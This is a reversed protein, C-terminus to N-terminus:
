AGGPERAGPSVRRRKKVKTIVIGTLAALAFSVAAGIIGSLPTGTANGPDSAIAYDPLLAINEQLSAAGAFVGGKAELETKAGLVQETTKGIAWELGDPRSSAFPSLVGAVVVTLAALTIVLKKISFESHRRGAPASAVVEPGMEAPTSAIAEGLRGAPASAVIEVLKDTQTSTVVETLINTQASDVVETRRGEQVSAVIETRRGAQASDIVDPRMKYVFCLVSATVIGEVLGIVLHIPLMLVMFTGFPLETIGSFTTQLVVGFAGIELGAVVSAISAVSLRKYGTGVRLLPKFILPYVLLCPIVGMNFINCGLALLGGDAFFLCQIILVASLSLFAPVGGLLGALMIGGGLHGSAGTAPIAFNIMQGAFVLAGSVGMIPVIKESLEYKKVKAVSAGIAAVSVANMAMGVAPTILADAMHM